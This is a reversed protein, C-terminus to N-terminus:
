SAFIAILILELAAAGIGWWTSPARGGHGYYDDAGEYYTAASAASVVKALTLM